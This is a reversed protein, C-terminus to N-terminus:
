DDLRHRNALERLLGGAQLALARLRELRPLDWGDAPIREIAAAVADGTAALDGQDPLGLETAASAAIAHLEAM